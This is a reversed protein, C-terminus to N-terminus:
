AAKKAADARSKDNANKEALIEADTKIARAPKATKIVKLKTKLNASQLM